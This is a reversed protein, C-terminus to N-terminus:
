YPLHDLPNNGQGPNSYVSDQSNSRISAIADDAVSSPAGLSAINPESNGRSGINTLLSSPRSEAVSPASNAGTSLSSSRSEEIDPERYNDRGYSKDWKAWLSGAIEQILWAGLFVAVFLLVEIGYNSTQSYGKDNLWKQLGEGMFDHLWYQMDEPFINDYVHTSNQLVGDEDFCQPNPGRTGFASMFMVIFHGIGTQIAKQLFQSGVIDRTRTSNTTNRTAKGNIEQESPDFTLALGRNMSMDWNRAGQQIGLYGLRLADIGIGASMMIQGHPGMAAGFVNGAANSASIGVGAYNTLMNYLGEQTARIPPGYGQNNDTHLLARSLEGINPVAVEARGETTQVAEIYAQIIKEDTIEDSIQDADKGRIYREKMLAKFQDLTDNLRKFAFYYRSFRAEYFAIRWFWDKLYVEAGKNEIDKAVDGVAKQVVGAGTSSGEATKMQGVEAQRNSGIMQQAQNGIIDAQKELGANDNLPMGTATTGTAKVQGLAQQAIHTAEHGLHQDKGPALDITKHQAIAEAGEKAPKSSNHNIKTDSIDVGMINGVNSLIRADNSSEKRQIPRQKAQVPKQKAQITQQKAQIPKQKAQITGKRGAKSQIPSKSGAPNKFSAQKRQVPSSADETQHDPKYQIM